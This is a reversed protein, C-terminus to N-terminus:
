SESKFIFNVNRTYIKYFCSFRVESITPTEEKEVPAEEAPTPPPSTPLPPPEEQLWFINLCLYFNIKIVM